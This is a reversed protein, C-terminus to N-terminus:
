NDSSGILPVSQSFQNYFNFLFFHKEFDNVVLFNMDEVGFAWRREEPELSVDLRGKLGNGLFVMELIFVDFVIQHSKGTFVVELHHNFSGAFDDFDKDPLGILIEVILSSMNEQIILNLRNGPLVTFNCLAFLLKDVHHFLGFSLLLWLRNL